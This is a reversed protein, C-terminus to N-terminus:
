RAAAGRKLEAEAMAVAIRGELDAALRDAVESMAPAPGVGTRGCEKELSTVPRGALGCPVILDFHALNTGVNLALGHLSVWKRV